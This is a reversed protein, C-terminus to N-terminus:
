CCPSCLRVKCCHLVQEGLHVKRFNQFFRLPAIKPAALWKCLTASNSVNCVTLRIPAGQLLAHGAGGRVGQPLEPLLGAARHGPAAPQARRHAARADGHGGGAAARVRAGGPGRRDAGAVSHVRRPKNPNQHQECAWVTTQCPAASGSAAQYNSTCCGSGLGLVWSQLTPSKLVAKLMSSCLGQFCLSQLLRSINM